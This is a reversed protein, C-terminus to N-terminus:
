KKLACGIVLSPPLQLGVVYHTVYERSQLIIVNDDFLKNRFLEFADTKQPHDQKRSLALQTATESPTFFTLGRKFVMRDVDLKFNLGELQVDTM